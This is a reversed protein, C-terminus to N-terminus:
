LMGKSAMRMKRLAHAEIQRARERTIDLRKSIDELTQDEEYRLMLVEKEITTKGAGTEGLICYIKGM